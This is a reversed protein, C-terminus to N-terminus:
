WTSMPGLPDPSVNARRSWSEDGAGVAGELGVSLDGDDALHLDVAERRERGPLDHDLQADQRALEFRGQEHIVGVSVQEREIIGSEGLIRLHGEIPDGPLGVEHLDRVRRDPLELRAIGVHGDASVLERDRRRHRGTGPGFSWIPLRTASRAPGRRSPLIEPM